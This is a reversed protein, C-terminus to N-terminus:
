TSSGKSKSDAAGVRIELGQDEHKERERQLAKRNEDM